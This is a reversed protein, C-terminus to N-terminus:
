QNRAVVQVRVAPETADDTHIIMEAKESQRNQTRVPPTFTVRIRYLQGETVPEVRAAFRANNLTVDQIQFPGTTKSVLVDRSVPPAPASESAYKVPGFNLTSPSVSIAGKTMVQVQLTTEPMNRSNTRVFLAGYTSMTPLKPNKTVRLTYENKNPGPQAKYTIKDDIDSSLGVVKFDLDPENSTLTLTQEVEQGYRGQLFITGSPTVSLYSMESGAVTLTLVPYNPDNTEVEVPKSFTGEVKHGDVILEIKGEGGPPILKDFSATTCGCGPKVDQIVLDETGKNRVKFVYEYTDKEFIQGLDIVMKSIEIAPGPKPQPAEQALLTGPLSAAICLAAVAQFRQM